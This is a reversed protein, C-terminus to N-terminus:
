ILVIGLMVGRLGVGLVLIRLVSRRRLLRSAITRKVYYILAHCLAMSVTMPSSRSSVRCRMHRWNLCTSIPTSLHCIMTSSTSPTKQGVFQVRDRGHPKPLDFIPIEATNLVRVEEMVFPAHRGGFAQLCSMGKPIAFAALFLVAVIGGKKGQDKRVSRVFPGAAACGPVGGFSHLVLVVDRGQEDIIGELCSSIM